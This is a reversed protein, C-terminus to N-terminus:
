AARARDHCRAWYPLLSGVCWGDVRQQQLRGVGDMYEGKTYTEPWISGGKKSNLLDNCTTACEHASPVVFHTEFWCSNAGAAELPATAAVTIALLVLLPQM